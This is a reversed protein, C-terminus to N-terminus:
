HYSAAYYVKTHQNNAAHKRTHVIVEHRCLDHKLEMVLETLRTGTTSIKYVTDIHVHVNRFATEKVPYMCRDADGHQYLRV